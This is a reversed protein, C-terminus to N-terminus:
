GPALAVGYTQRFARLCGTWARALPFYSPENYPWAVGRCVTCVRVSVRPLLISRHSCHKSIRLTSWILLQVQHWEQAGLMEQMAEQADDELDRSGGSESLTRSDRSRLGNARRSMEEDGEDEGECAICAVTLRATGALSEPLNQGTSAPCCGPTLVVM